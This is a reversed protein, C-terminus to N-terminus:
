IRDDKKDEKEKNKPNHPSLAWLEEGKRCTDGANRYARKGDACM